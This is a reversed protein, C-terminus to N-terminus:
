CNLFLLCRTIWDFAKELVVLTAFTDLSQNLQNKVISSVTFIHDTCSCRRRFGNQEDSVLDLMDCYATIRKDLLASYVKGICSLM